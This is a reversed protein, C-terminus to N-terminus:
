ASQQQNVGERYLLKAIARDKDLGLVPVRGALMDSVTARLGALSSLSQFDNMSEIVVKAVAAHSM